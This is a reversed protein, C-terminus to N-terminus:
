VTFSDTGAFGADPVYTFSGDAAITVTGEGTDQGVLPVVAPAMPDDVDTAVAKTMAGSADAISALGALTAGAVHLQTNGLTSYTITANQLNVVDNIPNVTITFQQPASTNVGGNATGGNDQLTVTITASGFANPAATYTLTGTSSLAPGASFLTPNTNNTIQFTVTQGGEGPGGPSISTAFGGVSQVGEDEDSTDGASLSFSPADNV